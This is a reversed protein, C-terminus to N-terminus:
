GGIYRIVNVDKNLHYQETRFRGIQISATFIGNDINIVGQSIYMVEKGASFMSIRDSSVKITSSADNKGIILGENTSKMYTDIFTKLEALGGFQTTLLDIRRGAEVLDSESKKQSDANLKVFANYAKELESFAEMSAKAKMEAELIQSKENLANLQEQTLGQDAKSNINSEIDEPAPSWDSHVTGYEVKVKTELVTGIQINSSGAGYRLAIFEVGALDASSILFKNTNYHKYTKVTKGLSNFFSIYNKRFLPNTITICISRGQIVPIKMGQQKIFIGPHSSVAGIYPDSGIAKLTINGSLVDMNFESVHSSKGISRNKSLAYINVYGGDVKAWRDAWKYKTKDSSDPKEYDSYHGFYRQGNDTMTLGSGDANESYAFHVYPTRGDTGARGAVGNAGDRGKWRTWRYDAPNRSDTPNFDIYVGVFAKDTNTQSFGGGTANDAYAMH